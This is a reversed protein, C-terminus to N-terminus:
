SRGPFQALAEEILRDQDAANVSRGLVHQTAQAVENAMVDFLDKLASDRARSIESLARQKAAEAEKQAKGVIDQKLADGDKAAEALLARIEEHVQAMRKSHEALMQEAKIRASEAASIDGRVKGEREDLAQILPKWAFRGLLILFIVFTVASWLALDAKFGLPVGEEKIEGSAEHAAAEAQKVLAPEEAALAPTRSVSIWALLGLAGCVSLRAIWTRM